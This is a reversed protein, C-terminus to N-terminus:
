KGQKNYKPKSRSVINQEAKRAEDISSKQEIRVKAGGPVPDQGRLLHDKLRDQVNGRGAIGTYINQNKNDLIKYVVPKNEPLKSIMDKNLKTTKTRYDAM